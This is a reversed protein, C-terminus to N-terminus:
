KLVGSSDLRYLLMVLDSFRGFFDTNPSFVASLDTALIGQSIYFSSGTCLFAFLLLCLVSSLLGIYHNSPM